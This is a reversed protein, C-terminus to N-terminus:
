TGPDCKFLHTKLLSRFTVLEIDPQHLEAPLTNWKWIRPGAADAEIGVAVEIIVGTSCYSADSKSDLM